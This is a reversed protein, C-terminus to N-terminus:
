GSGTGGNPPPAFGVAGSFNNDFAFAGIRIMPILATPANIPALSNDIGVYQFQVNAVASWQDFAAQLTSQLSLLNLTSTANSSGPNAYFNRLDLTSTGPCATGCYSSGPTGAAMFGWTVIGGPTGA